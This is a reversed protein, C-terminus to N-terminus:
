VLQLAGGEVVILLEGNLSLSLNLRLRLRVVNVTAKPLLQPLLIPSLPQTLVSLSLRTPKHSSLIPRLILTKNILHM